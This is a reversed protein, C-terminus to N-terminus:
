AEGKGEEGAEPMLEIGQSSFADAAVNEQSDLEQAADELAQVAPEEELRLQKAQRSLEELSTGDFEALEEASEQNLEHYERLSPLQNLNSINFFSLFDKSTGYLLPRGPEEKKGVIRVLSRDILLRLTGGCDVGRIHDIEPKTAPQRYAVIALTELAAKSLRVPREDRMARLYGSHVPNSRFAFGEAVEVLNFGRSAGGEDWRAKLADLADKLRGIRAEVQAKDEEDAWARLCIKKLDALTMPEGGAFLIAEIANVLEDDM